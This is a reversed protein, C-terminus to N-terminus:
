KICNFLNLIEDFKIKSYDSYGKNFYIRFKEIENESLTLFDEKKILFSLRSYWYTNEGKTYNSIESKENVLIIKKGNKLIFIIKNGKDLSFVNKRTILIKLRHATFSDLKSISTSFLIRDRKNSLVADTYTLFNKRFLITNKKIDKKRRPKKSNLLKSKKKYAVRISDLNIKSYIEKYKTQKEYIGTFDDVKDKTYKCKQGYNLQCLLTLFIVTIIKRM